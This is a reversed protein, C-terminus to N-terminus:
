AKEVSIVATMTHSVGAALTVSNTGVNATEVAVMEHWEWPGLDPLEGWPNFVVTANSNTKRVVIRRKVTGDHITCAANTDPYVRDVKRTFTIPANAAPRLKMEDTKDIFSTPELGAVAVEHIDTVSYYSHFAEEFTLPKTDDNTVTLSLTLTRGITFALALRFHDFGLTRSMNTSGLDFTLVVDKQSRVASSLTWNQIRAFGHMPGPHGDIRDLKSDQAFWPFVVPIGGRIPKGPALDSKRSLFIVPQQAVPQWATLHAGQVYITAAAYSTKVHARILGNQEDFTLFDAKAFQQQLSALDM